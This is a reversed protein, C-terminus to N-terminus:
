FVGYVRHPASLFLGLPNLRVGQVGYRSRGTRWVVRLGAASLMIRVRKRGFPPLTDLCLTSASVLDAAFPRSQGLDEPPEAGAKEKEWTLLADNEPVIVSRWHSRRMGREAILDILEAREEEEGLGALPGTASDDWPAEHPVARSRVGRVSRGSRTALRTCASHLPRDLVLRRCSRARALGRGQLDIVHDTAVGTDVQSFCTREALANLRTPLCEM